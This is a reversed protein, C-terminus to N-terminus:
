ASVRPHLKVVFKLSGLDPQDSPTVDTAWDHPLDVPYVAVDLEKGEVIIKGGMSVVVEEAAAHTKWVRSGTAKVTTGRSLARDYIPVVGLVYAVQM